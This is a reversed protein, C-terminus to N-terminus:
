RRECVPKQQPHPFSPRLATSRDLIASLTKAFRDENLSCLIPLGIYCRYLLFLRSYSGGPVVVLICRLPPPPHLVHPCAPIALAKGILGGVPYGRSQPVGTLRSM